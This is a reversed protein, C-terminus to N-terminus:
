IFGLPDFSRGLIKTDDAKLWKNMLTAYISRFDISHAVDGDDLHELDPTQNYIGAKKLQSSIIFVNNAKGHDTGNSANQKVRRGFESFVMILVDDMRGAQTLHSVLAKIGGSVKALNREQQGAQNVHTDFGSISAYFVSTSAGAM